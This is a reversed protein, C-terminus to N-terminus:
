EVLLRALFFLMTLLFSNGLISRRKQYAYGLILATGPVFFLMEWLLFASIEPIHRTVAAFFVGTFIIVSGLLGWRLGCLREMTTQLVGRWILEFTAAWAFFYLLEKVPPGKPFSVDAFSSLHMGSLIAIILAVILGLCMDQPLQRWRIYPFPSPIIGKFALYIIILFLALYIAFFFINVEDSFPNVMLPTAPGFIHVLSLVVLIVVSVVIESASPRASLYDALNFSPKLDFSLLQIILLVIAIVLSFYLALPPFFRNESANDQRTIPIGDCELYLLSRGNHPLLVREFGFAHLTPNNILQQLAYLLRNTSYEELPLFLTDGKLQLYTKEDIILYGGTIRKTSFNEMCLAEGEALFVLGSYNNNLPFLSLIGGYPLYIEYGELQFYFPESQYAQTIDIKPASIGIDLGGIVSFLLASALLCLLIIIAFLSLFRTISNTKRNNLMIAYGM